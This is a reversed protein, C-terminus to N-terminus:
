KTAVALAASFDKGQTVTADVKVNQRFKEPRRGNLMFMLLVDSHENVKDGTLRGQHHLAREYGLVGRRKAEDEMTDTGAEVAADWAAGFREDNDRLKYFTMRPAGAEIAARSATWGEM